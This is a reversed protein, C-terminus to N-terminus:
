NVTVPFLYNLEPAFSFSNVTGVGNGLKRITQLLPYLPVHAAKTHSENSFIFSLHVILSIRNRVGVFVSTGLLFIKKYLTFM